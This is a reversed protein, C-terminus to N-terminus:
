RIARIKARVFRLFDRLTQEPVESFDCEKIKEDSGDHFHRPFGKMNRLNEHPRNDYRYVKGNIARREWHYAFRGRIKRSFWIDVFSGDVIFLRLKNERIHSDIIIDSFEERAIESLEHYIM